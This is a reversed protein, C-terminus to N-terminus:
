DVLGEKVAVRVLGAVNHVDLKKLLSKRHTEVTGQSIFLLDGIEKSSHGEAILKLIEKERDTLTLLKFKHNPNIEQGKTALIETVRSSFFKKGHAVNIIANLFDDSDDNKILYGYIGLGMMKEVTLQSLHMTLLIVKLEPKIKLLQETLEAGSMGPMDLDVLLIEPNLEPIKNLAERPDNFTKLIRIHENSELLSILGDIVLQHDDVIVIDVNRELKM